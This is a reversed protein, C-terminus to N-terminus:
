ADIYKHYIKQQRLVIYRGFSAILKNARSGFLEDVIKELLQGLSKSDGPETYKYIEFSASYLGVAILSQSYKLLEADILASKALESVM